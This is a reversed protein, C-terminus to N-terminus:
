VLSTDSNRKAWIICLIGLIVSYIVFLYNPIYDWETYKSTLVTFLMVFIICGFFGVSLLKLDRITPLMKKLTIKSIM